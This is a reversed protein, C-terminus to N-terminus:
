DEIEVEHVNREFLCNITQDKTKLPESYVRPVSNMYKQASETSSFSKEIKVVTLRGDIENGVNVVIYAKLKM